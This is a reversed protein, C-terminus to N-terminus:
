GRRKEGAKIVAVTAISAVSLAALVGCAIYFPIESGQQKPEDDSGGLEGPATPIETKTDEEGNETTTEEVSPEETTSEIVVSTTEDTNDYQPITTEEEASTETDDWPPLFGITESEESTEEVDGGWYSDEGITLSSIAFAMGRAADADQYFMIDSVEIYYGKSGSACWDTRFGRFTTDGDERYWGYKLATNEELGDDEAMDFIMSGWSSSSSYEAVASHCAYTGEIRIMDLLGQASGTVTFLEMLSNRISPARYRIVTYRFDATTLAKIGNANAYGLYDFMVQPDNREGEEVFSYVLSGDKVSLVTNVSGASNFHAIDSEKFRSLTQVPAYLETMMDYAVDKVAEADDSFIIAAIECTTGVPLYGGEIYDLRFTYISGGWGKENKMDFELFQWDKGFDYHTAKRADEGLGMEEGGRASTHYYISLNSYDTGGIDARALVVVYRRASYEKLDIHVFADNTENTVTLNVASIGDREVLEWSTSNPVYIKDIIDEARLVECSPEATDGGQEGAGLDDALAAFCSLMGALMLVSLIIAVTERIRIKTVDKNMKYYRKKFNM